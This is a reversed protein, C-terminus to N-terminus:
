AVLKKYQNNYKEAQMTTVIEQLSGEKIHLLVTVLDMMEQIKLAEHQNGNKDAVVHAEQQNQLVEKLEEKTKGLFRDDEHQLMLKITEIAIATREKTTSPFLDNISQHSINNSNMISTKRIFRCYDLVIKSFTLIKLDILVHKEVNKLFM